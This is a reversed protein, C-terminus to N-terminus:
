KAIPFNLPPLPSGAGVGILFKAKPAMVPVRSPVRCTGDGTQARNAAGYFRTNRAATLAAVGSIRLRWRAVKNTHVLDRGWCYNGSWGRYLEEVKDEDSSRIAAGAPDWMCPHKPNYRRQEMFRDRGRMAGLVDTQRAPMPFNTLGSFRPRDPTRINVELDVVMNEPPQPREYESRRVAHVEGYKPRGALLARESEM